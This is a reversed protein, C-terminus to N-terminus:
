FQDLKKIIGSYCTAHKKTQSLCSVTATISLSSHKPHLPKFGDFSVIAHPCIGKHPRHSLEQCGGAQTKAVQKKEHDTM